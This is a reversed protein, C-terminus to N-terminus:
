ALIQLRIKKKFTEEDSFLYMQFHKEEYNNCNERCVIRSTLKLEPLFVVYQFLGDNREIKDFVYGKYQKTLVQPNNYCLDLLTCDIQVKRISRMTTNIYELDSMWKEYFQKANESLVVIQKNEQLQIMNLLDVLRRIPSTIHIYADLELLEHRVNVNSKDLENGNIYQGCASSNWIKIFNTVEEPLHEPTKVNQIIASRFIGNKNQIMNQACYFNMFIMLYCVVDHSDRVSSTYKHKKSLIKVCNLISIYNMNKLLSSEEYVYNKFVKIFCNSYKVDLIIDTNKRVFIDMVLAIRVNKEQLSCLCDSLITPLMPRKRDPLYITSIRRSFSDWLHLVEMWITVNSIYISLQQIEDVEKISFADDFDMSKAPDITLIHWEQNTRDEIGPYKVRINQILEDHSSQQLAKTTEKQFKQISAHLSKCYLQYEYYNDLVDVEGISQTILGHPHKENWDVFNFTVYMNTFVKSFGVHKIEYPILFPPIRMDDPICKYLLKGNKRGYTKNGHIILVGPLCGGSRISSHVIEINGKTIKFFDGSFLKQQIPDISIALEIPKFHLSDVVSWSTYGRDNVLLKHIDM